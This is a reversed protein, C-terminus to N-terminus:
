VGPDGWKRLSAPRVEIVALFTERGARIDVTIVDLERDWKRVALGPSGRPSTTEAPITIAM